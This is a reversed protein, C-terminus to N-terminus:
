REKGTLVPKMIKAVVVVGDGFFPTKKYLFRIFLRRPLSKFYLIGRAWISSPLFRTESSSSPTYKSTRKGFLNSLPFIKPYSFSYVYVEKIEFGGKTLLNTITHYSFWYNHDPHIYEVGDLLQLLSSVRFANPVTVILETHGPIMLKKVAELFLGPNMLHEILESAVIVEFHQNQLEPIKDLNCVDGVMLNNFGHNRLFTIGDADIDIGWLNTAVKALKQHLLEGSSFREQLLGSDICGLHLVRKGKCRELVFDHRGVLIPVKPLEIYPNM